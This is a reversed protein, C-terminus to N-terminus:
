LHNLFIEVELEWSAILSSSRTWNKLEWIHSELSMIVIVSSPKLQKLLTKQMM